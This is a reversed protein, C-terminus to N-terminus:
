ERVAEARGFLRRGFALVVSAGAVALGVLNTTVCTRCANCCAPAAPAVDAMRNTLPLLRTTTRELVRDITGPSKTQQWRAAV